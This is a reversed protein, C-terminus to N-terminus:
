FDEYANLRNKLIRVEDQLQEVQKLLNYIADIGEFNIDLDYHLRIMKEIANLQNTKLYDQNDTITIEILEYEQLATIFRVPV